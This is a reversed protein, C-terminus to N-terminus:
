RFETRLVSCVHLECFDAVLTCCHCSPNGFLFVLFNKVRTGKAPKPGRYEALQFHGQQSYIFKQSAQHALSTSLHTRSHPRGSLQSFPSLMLLARRSAIAFGISGGKPFLR